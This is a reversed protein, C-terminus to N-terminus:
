APCTPPSYRRPTSFPPTPNCGALAPTVYEGGATVRASTETLWVVSGTANELAIYSGDLVSEDNRTQGLLVPLDQRMYPAPDRVELVLAYALGDPQLIRLSAIRVGSLGATAAVAQAIQTHLATASVGTATPASPLRLGSGSLRAGGCPGNYALVAPLHNQRSLDAFAGVFLWTEWVDQNMLGGTTSVTLVVATSPGGWSSQNAPALTVAAIDTAGMRALIVRGLAREAASGGSVNPGHPAEPEARVAVCVAAAILLAALLAIASRVLRSVAGAYPRLRLRRVTVEKDDTTAALTRM